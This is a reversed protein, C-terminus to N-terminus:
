GRGRAEGQRSSVLLGNRGKAKKERKQEYMLLDAAEILADLSKDEVAEATVIGLSFRLLYSREGRANGEEAREELRRTV